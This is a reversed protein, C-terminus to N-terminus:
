NTFLSNPGFCRILLGLTLGIGAFGAAAVLLESRATCEPEPVRFFEVFGDWANNQVLWERQNSLLYTSIEQSVLGVVSADRDEEEILQRCVVAGFAMLSAIRSWTIGDSFVIKTIEGVFSM